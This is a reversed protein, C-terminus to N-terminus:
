NTPGDKRRTFYLSESPAIVSYSWQHNAEAIKRGLDVAKKLISDKNDPFRGYNILGVQVGDETGGTFIYRIPQVTVCLGIEFCEKRCIMESTNLDGAVYIWVWWSDVSVKRWECLEDQRMGSDGQGASSRAM